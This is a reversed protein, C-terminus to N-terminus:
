GSAAVRGGGRQNRLDAHWAAQLALGEHPSIMPRYGFHAAAKSTDAATDRQDGPRPEQYHIVPEVGLVEALQDIADVLSISEAGGLNYVEGVRGNTLAAVTGRVCDDVYMSSRTQRGDGYVRLPRGDLLAECFIHYAMDPRQRPGYVSFYRLIVAPLGFNVMYARVLHEAALKTVGYPSVPFTPMEEDGVAMRGYVSSTSIHLFRQIGADRSSALLREVAQVNNTLYSDFETWSRPLGPMAAEHIVADVGRLAERLDDRRLDAEHFTFRPRTLARALNNIKYSRPYSEVFGDLGVVEYGADLLAEVLHSGIFGAAGTVLVKM